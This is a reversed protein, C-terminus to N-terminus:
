FDGFERMKSGRSGMRHMGWSALMAYTCECFRDFNRERAANLSQVQFYLSPGGFTENEYYAAHASDLARSGQVKPLRVRNEEERPLWL